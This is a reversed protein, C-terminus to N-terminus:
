FGLFGVRLGVSAQPYSRHLGEIGTEKAAIDGAVRRVLDSWGFGPSLSGWVRVLSEDWEPLDVGAGCGFSSRDRRAATMVVRHPGTVGGADLFLGSFCASILVLAPGDALGAVELDSELERPTLIVDDEDGDYELLFGEERVGHSTLFLVLGDGAVLHLSALAERLTQKSTMELPTGWRLSGVLDPDSTLVRIDGPPIGRALLLAHVADRANDWNALPGDEDDAYGAVLVAKWRVLSAEAGVPSTAAFGFVALLVLWLSKM